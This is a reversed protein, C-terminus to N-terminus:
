PAASSPVPKAKWWLHPDPPDSPGVERGSRAGPQLALLSEGPDHAPHNVKWSPTRRNGDPAPSPRSEQRTGPRVGRVTRAPLRSCHGARAAPEQPATPGRAPHNPLGPGGQGKRGLLLATEQPYTGGVGAPRDERASAPRRGERSPVNGASETLVACCHEKQM